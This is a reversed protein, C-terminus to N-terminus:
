ARFRILISHEPGCSPPDPPYFSGGPLLRAGQLNLINKGGKLYKQGVMAHKRIADRAINEGRMVTIVSM